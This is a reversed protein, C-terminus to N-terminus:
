TDLPSCIGRAGRRSLCRLTLTIRLHRPKGTQFGKPVEHSPYVLSPIIQHEEAPGWPVLGLNAPGQEHTAGLCICKQAQNKREESLESIVQDGAQPSPQHPSTNLHHGFPATAQQPLIKSEDLSEELSLRGGKRLEAM